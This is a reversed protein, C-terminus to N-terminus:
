VSSTSEASRTELAIAEADGPCWAVDSAVPLGPVWVIRGDALVVPWSRRLAAPISLGQLLRNIKGEGSSHLPRFRDGSCLNRITLRTGVREANLLASNYAQTAANSDLLSACIHIDPGNWFGALSLSGPVALELCYPAAPKRSEPALLSLRPPLFKERIVEAAFRRPLNLRRACGALAFERLAELQAFDLALCHPHCLRRLIRRQLALPQAQLLKLEVGHSLDAGPGLTSSVLDDLFASEAAAVEATEYLAQRLRPNYDRELAPLLEARV